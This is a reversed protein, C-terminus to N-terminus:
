PLRPAPVWRKATDADKYWAWYVKKLAQYMKPDARGMILMPLVLTEIIQILAIKIAVLEDEHEIKHELTQHLNIRVCLEEIANLVNTALRLLENRSEKGQDDAASISFSTKQAEYEKPRNKSIWEISFDDIFTIARRGRRLDERNLYIEKLKKSLHEDQELVDTRFLHIQDAIAERRKQKLELETQRMQLRYSFAALMVSFATVIEAVRALAELRNPFVYAVVLGGGAILCVCFSLSVSKWSRHLMDM